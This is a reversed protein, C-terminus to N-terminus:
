IRSKLTATGESQTAESVFRCYRKASSCMVCRSLASVLGDKLTRNRQYVALAYGPLASCDEPQIPRRHSREASSIGHDGREVRDVSFTVRRSSFFPVPVDGETKIIEIGQISYAGRWLRIDVDGIRGDYEPMEDLKKNVYKRVIHPLAIRLGILRFKARYDAFVQTVLECPYISMPVDTPRKVGVKSFPYNLSGALRRVFDVSRTLRGAVAAIM